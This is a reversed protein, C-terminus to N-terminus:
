TKNKGNTAYAPKPSILYTSQNSILALVFVRFLLALGEEDCTLSLGLFNIYGLCAAAFIVLTVVLLLGLMILRKTTTTYGDYHASLGPVYSFLLSLLVGSASVLIDQHLLM